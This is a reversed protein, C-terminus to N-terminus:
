WKKRGLRWAAALVRILTVGSPVSLDILFLVLLPWPTHHSKSDDFKGKKSSIIMFKGKRKRQREGKSRTLLVHVEAAAHLLYWRATAHLNVPSGM